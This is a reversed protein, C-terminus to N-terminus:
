KSWGKRLNEIEWDIYQKAKELDLIRDELTGKNRLVYKAANGRCFNLHRTLMIPEVGGPFDSYHSSGPANALSAKYEELTTQKATPVEDDPAALRFPVLSAATRLWDGSKHWEVFKKDVDRADGGSVTIACKSCRAMQYGYKKIDLYGLTHIDEELAMGHPNPM